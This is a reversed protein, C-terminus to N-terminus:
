LLGGAYSIWVLFSLGMPNFMWYLSQKVYVSSSPPGVETLIPSELGNTLNQVGQDQPRSSESRSGCVRNVCLGCCEADEDCDLGDHACAWVMERDFQCGTGKACGNQVELPTCLRGNAVSKCFDNAEQFTGQKCVGQIKSLAFLSPNYNPCKQKWPSSCDDCDRCCRVAHIEDIPAVTRDGEACRWSGDGRGCALTKYDDRPEPDLTSPDWLKLIDQEQLPKSWVMVDDIEGEFPQPLGDGNNPDTRYGYGGVNLRGATHFFIHKNRNNTVEMDYLVGDIYVQVESYKCSDSPMVVAIHHWQRDALMKAETLKFTGGNNSFQIRLEGDHLKIGLSDKSASNWNPGFYLLMMVKSPMSTRMWLAISHAIGATYPGISFVGFRSNSEFKGALTDANRGPVLEINAIQADYQEGFSGSNHISETCNIGGVVQYKAVLSDENRLGHIPREEIKSISEFDFHLLAVEDDLINLEGSSSIQPENPNSKDITLLGSQVFDNNFEGNPGVERYQKINITNDTTDVALFSSLRNGRSVIQVLNSGQTKSKSATVAHVEGAFYIDVKYEEMLRWFLSDTQDDLFQGSCKVKRVPHMIPVHAEVFIHKISSDDRAAKLM